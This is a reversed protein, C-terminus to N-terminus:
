LAPVTQMADRAGLRNWLVHCVARFLLAAYYTRAARSFAEDTM